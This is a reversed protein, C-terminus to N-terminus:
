FRNFFFKLKFLRPEFLPKRAEIESEKNKEIPHTASRNLAATKFVATPECRGHTRIEGWGGIRSSRVSDGMPKLM